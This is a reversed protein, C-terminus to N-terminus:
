LIELLPAQPKTTSGQQNDIKYITTHIYTNIGLEWNMGGEAGVEWKTIMLKDEIYIHKQHEKYILNDIDTKESEM